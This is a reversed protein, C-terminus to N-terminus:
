GLLEEVEEKTFNVDLKVLFDYIFVSNIDCEPDTCSEKHLKVLSILQKKFFYESTLKEKEVM